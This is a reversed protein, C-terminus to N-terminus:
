SKKSAKRASISAQKATRADGAYRAYRRDGGQFIRKSHKLDRLLAAVRSQPANVKQAVQSASLGKSAKVAREVTSRLQQRAESSQRAVRTKRKAKGKKAPASAVVAARVAALPRAPRSSAASPQSPGVSLQNRVLELLAEDPMSRVLTVIQASFPDLKAM